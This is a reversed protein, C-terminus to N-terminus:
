AGVSCTSLVGSNRTNLQGFLATSLHQRHPTSNAHQRLVPVSACCPRVSACCLRPPQQKTSKLQQCHASLSGVILLALM